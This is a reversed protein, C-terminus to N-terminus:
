ELEFAHMYWANKVMWAMDYVIGGNWEKIPWDEYETYISDIYNKKPYQRKM